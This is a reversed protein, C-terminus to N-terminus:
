SQQILTDREASDVTYCRGWKANIFALAYGPNERLPHDTLTILTQPSAACPM